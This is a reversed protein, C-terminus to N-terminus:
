PTAGNSTSATPIECALDTVIPETVVPNRHGGAAWSPFVSSYIGSGGAVFLVIDAPDAIARLLDHGRGTGGYVPNLATIASRPNVAREALKTQGEARGLGAAALM